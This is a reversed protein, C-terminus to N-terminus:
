VLEAECCYITFKQVSVAARGQVSSTQGADIAPDFVYLGGMASLNAALADVKLTRDMLEVLAAHAVLGTDDETQTKTTVSFDMMRNGSGQPEENGGPCVCVVCPRIQTDDDDGTYVSVDAPLGVAASVLGAFSNELVSKLSM